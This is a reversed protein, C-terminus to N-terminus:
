EFHTMFTRALAARTRRPSPRDDGYNAVQRSTNNLPVECFTLFDGLAAAFRPSSPAKRGGATSGSSTPRHIVRPVIRAILGSVVADDRRHVANSHRVNPAYAIHSVRVLCEFSGPSTVVDSM